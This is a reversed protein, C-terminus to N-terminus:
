PPRDASIQLDFDTLNPAIDVAKAAIRCLQDSECRVDDKADAAYRNRRQLLCSPGDGDHKHVNGIRHTSTEDLAHRV